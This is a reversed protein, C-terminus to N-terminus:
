RKAVQSHKARQPQPLPAGLRAHMDRAEKSEPFRELVEELVAKADARRGSDAMVEALFIRPEITGDRLIWANAARRAERFESAKRAADAWAKLRGIDSPQALAEQRATVLTEELTGLKREKSGKSTESSAEDRLALDAKAVDGKQVALTPTDVLDDASPLSEETPRDTAHARDGLTKETTLPVFAVAAPLTAEAALTPLDNSNARPLDEARVLVSEETSARLASWAAKIGRGNVQSSGALLGVAGLMVLTAVTRSAAKRVPKKTLTAELAERMAEASNFRNEPRKALAAMIISELAAPIGKHEARSKPPEPLERLQKGMVEVHSRGQFPPRGVLLEYLVCGLSYLDSRADVVEGAVQEPSMYEPTGFVAFGKQKSEVGTDSMAMSVGFDLLKVRGSKTLFLNQPKLDRHVLGAGHAVELARTVDIAIDVAERWDMGHTRKLRRDLGEGQLLEMAIFIRGDLSKGFDYLLCLNPHHLEAIARAEKRFREIADTASSQEPALLKLALKRGLEVHESEWVQGSAGEGIKRLLRYPTGALVSDDTMRKVMADSTPGAIPTENNGQPELLGRAAHLSKAFDARSRAPEAPWLRKMLGQTRARIGREGQKSTPSEQLVRALDQAALVGSTYRNEPDNATLRAIVRDLLAPAGIAAAVEPIVVRNQAADELHKQADTTLFRKGTCLEWLMIGLAYLDIRHDGVEHRAVEPAVYGPKAFVVGAVTHCRRNQGRATGFDILKVEGAYGVMVNQPSLDRHVIGLPKGDSGTREHVHALAQAMEIAVACAEAWGIKVGLQIARQRAESLSRGEIYEVVTFPEGNEDTSAELVQAVGPHNLQSQVRAEDLFRALFSGDHIHDRRVTKVVCPREAGEIGTTAALYVDGMGGRAVLKLLLLRGFARPVTMTAENSFGEKKAEIAEKPAEKPAETPADNQAEFGESVVNADGM